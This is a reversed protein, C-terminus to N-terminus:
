QHDYKLLVTTCRSLALLLAITGEDLRLQVLQMRFASATSSWSINLGDGPKSISCTNGWPVPAPSFLNSMTRSSGM